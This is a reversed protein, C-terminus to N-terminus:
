KNYTDWFSKVALLYKATDATTDNGRHQKVKVSKGQTEFVKTMSETFTLSQRTTPNDKGILAKAKKVLDGYTNSQYTSLGKRVTFLVGHLSPNSNKLKGFEQSSYSFAYDVGIEIKEVKKNKLQEETPKVYHGNIVAYIVPPKNENYRLRYGENIQAKAEETISEPFGALNDLAWQAQSTSVDLNSAQQYAFDKLSAYTM